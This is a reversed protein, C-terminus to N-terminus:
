HAIIKFERKKRPGPNRKRVQLQAVCTSERFFFEDVDFGKLDPYFKKREDAFLDFNFSEDFGWFERYENLWKVSHSSVDKYIELIVEPLDYQEIRNRQESVWDAVPVATAKRSERMAEEYSQMYRLHPGKPHEEGAFVGSGFLFAAALGLWCTTGALRRVRM